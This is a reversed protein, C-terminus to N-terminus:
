KGKEAFDSEQMSKARNLGNRFQQTSYKSALVPFMEKLEAVKINADFKGSKLKRAFFETNSVPWRSSM